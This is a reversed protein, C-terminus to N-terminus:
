VPTANVESLVGVSRHSRKVLRLFSWVLVSWCVVNTVGTPGVVSAFRAVMAVWQTPVLLMQDVMWMLPGPLCSAILAAPIGVLMVFGAVPVALPNAVIAIAPVNHFVLLAVPLTGVQAALTASLVPILKRLSPRGGFPSRAFVSAIRASLWALGVTAGVSLAFGVSWALMPDILLLLGVSLCVVVRANVARGRAVNVAVIAAMMAARLVSPQARTLMVFWGITLLAGMLRWGSTLRKLLPSMAALVFAVNQGSASCLHSLGSARFQQIMTASQAHIDGIVLGAFLAAM